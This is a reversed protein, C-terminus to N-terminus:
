LDSTKNNKKSLYDGDKLYTNPSSRRSLWTHHNSPIQSCFLVHFHLSFCISFDLKMKNLPSHCYVKIHTPLLVNLNARPWIQRSPLLKLFLRKDTSGHDVRSFFSLSIAVTFCVCKCELCGGLGVKGLLWRFVSGFASPVIVCVKHIWRRSKSEKEACIPKHKTCPKQNSAKLRLNAIAFQLKHDNSSLILSLM